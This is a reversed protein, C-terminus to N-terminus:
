FNKLFKRFKKSKKHAWMLLVLLLLLGGIIYVYVPIYPVEVNNTVIKESQALVGLEKNVNSPTKQDSFKSTAVINYDGQALRNAPITFVINTDSETSFVKEDKFAEQGAQDFVVYSTTGTTTQEVKLKHQVTFTYENNNHIATAGTLTLLIEQPVTKKVVVKEVPKEVSKDKSETPAVEKEAGIKIAITKVQLGSDNNEADLALGESIVVKTDGKGIAKFTYQTFPTVGKAGEPYGATRTIIGSATDTLEYPARGLPLWSKEVSADVFKLVKPDYKLTAGVTFAPKASDPNVKLNFTFTDGVNGDFSSAYFLGPLPAAQVQIFLLLAFVGALIKTFTKSLFIKQSKM